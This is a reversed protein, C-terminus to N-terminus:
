EDNDYPRWTVGDMKDPLIVIHPACLLHWSNYQGDRFPTPSPCGPVNANQASFYDLSGFGPYQFTIYDDNGAKTDVVWMEQTSQDRVKALKREEPTPILWELVEAETLQRRTTPTPQIPLDTPTSPIEVVATFEPGTTPTPYSIPPTPQIAFVTPTPSITAISTPKSAALVEKLYQTSMTYFQTIGQCIQVVAAATVIMVIVPNDSLRSEQKTTQTSM